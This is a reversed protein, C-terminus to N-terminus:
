KIYSLYQIHWDLLCRKYNLELNIFSSGSLNSFASLLHLFSVPVSTVRFLHTKHKLTLTDSSVNFDSHNIILSNCLAPSPSLKRSLYLANLLSCSLYYNLFFFQNFTSEENSYFAPLWYISTGVACISSRPVRLAYVVLSRLNLRCCKM